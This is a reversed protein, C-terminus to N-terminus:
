LGCVLIMEGQEKCLYKELDIIEIWVASPHQRPACLSVPVAGLLVQEDKLSM